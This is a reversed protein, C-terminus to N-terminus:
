VLFSSGLNGWLGCIISRTTRWISSRNICSSAIISDTSSRRIPLFRVFPCSDFLSYPCSDFSPTNRESTRTDMKSSYRPVRVRGLAPRALGQSQTSTAVSLKPVGHEELENVLNWIDQPVKVDWSSFEGEHASDPLKPCVSYRVTNIKVFFVRNNNKSVADISRLNSDM